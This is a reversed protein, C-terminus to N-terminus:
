ELPRLHVVDGVAIRQEDGSSERVVLTGDPAVDVAVGLLEGAPLEVRVRQGLTALADRYRAHLADIDSPLSDFAGLLAVLLEEPTTGALRAAGPPAWGVNIGIGVVIAGDAGAEALVGAVKAGAVLVDNPWKLRPSAGTTAAIADAAALGVRRALVVGDSLAAPQFKLSVLLNAAPPSDWTRDLRGRGATQHGAVLVTRHGATADALLVANTSTTCEM